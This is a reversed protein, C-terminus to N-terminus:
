LYKLQCLDICLHLVLVVFAPSALPLSPSKFLTLNTQTGLKTKVPCATITFRLVNAVSIIENLSAPSHTLSFQKGRVLYYHHMVYCNIMETFFFFHIPLLIRCYYYEVTIL